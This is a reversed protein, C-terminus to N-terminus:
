FFHSIEFLNSQRKRYGGRQESCTIERISLAPPAPSFLPTLFVLGRAFLAPLFSLRASGFLLALLLLALGLLWLTLDLATLFLLLVARFALLTPFLLALLLDLTRLFALFAPLLAPAALFLNIAGAFLLLAPFLLSLSLDLLRTFTFLAPLLLTLLLLDLTLLPLAVFLQTALLLFM